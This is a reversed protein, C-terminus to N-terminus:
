MVRRIPTLIPDTIENLVRSLGGGDGRMFWSMLARIIIAFFLVNALISIFDVAVSIM